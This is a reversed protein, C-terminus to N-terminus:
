VGAGCLQWRRLPLSGESQGTGTFRVVLVLAPVERATVTSAFEDVLMWRWDGALGWPEVVGSDLEQGRCSKVPYRVIQTLVPWAPEPSPVEVKLM